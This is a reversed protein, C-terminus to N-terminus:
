HINPKWISHNSMCLLIFVDEHESWLINISEGAATSRKSPALMCQSEQQCSNYYSSARCGSKQYASHPDAAPQAAWTVQRNWHESHPYFSDNWCSAWEFENMIRFLAVSKVTNIYYLLLVRYCGLLM